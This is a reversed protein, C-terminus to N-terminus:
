GHIPLTEPGYIASLSSRWTAEGALKLGPLRDNLIPLAEQLEARALNAGLCYHPGAGFGLHPQRDPVTIDFDLPRVYEAPDHNGSGLSLTVLTGMPIEYGAIDLSETPTRPVVGVTGWSRIVEEVAQPVLDRDAALLAWQEPHDAFLCMALALQNRTTDYGAFLFAGILSRLEMNSLRDGDEEAQVLASILDDQPHARRDDILGNVYEMMNTAGWTAEDLRNGLELSFIWTIAKNWTAFRSRDQEPVGLLHCMVWIPYHDAIETVFDFPRSTDVGDLLGDLIERMAARHPEVARPTFARNVLKRLRLHNDGDQALLSSGVLEGIIGEDAGQIRVIVDLASRLRRDALSAQVQERGIVLAGLPSRLVKHGAEMHGTMIAPANERFEASFFDLFPAEDLSKM